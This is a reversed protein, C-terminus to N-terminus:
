SINERRTEQICNGSMEGVIIESVMTSNSCMRVIIDLYSEQGGPIEDLCFQGQNDDDYEDLGNSALLDDLLGAVEANNLDAFASHTSGKLGADDGLKLVQANGGYLNILKAVLRSEMVLTNNEPRHDGLIFQVVPLGALKKFRELPVVYPGFGGDGFTININDPYVYGISEYM